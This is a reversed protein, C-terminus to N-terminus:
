PVIAACREHRESICQWRHLAGLGIPPRCQRHNRVSEDDGISTLDSSCSALPSAESGVLVDPM